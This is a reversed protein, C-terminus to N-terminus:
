LAQTEGLRRAIADVVRTDIAHALGPFRDLTTRAGLARLHRDANVALAVPMVRDEDGHMLHINTELPRQRPEQAFRGALSIVRGALAAGAVQTAELAMIAGQSFGVLTTHAPDAGAERQWCLVAAQFAPMAAAVRAPRNEETVGLVSFWQWGAGVDAPSPSRVSVVWDQPRQAAVAEGLPRLDEARSGVGHFLLVLGAGPAMPHRPKHIVLDAQRDHLRTM